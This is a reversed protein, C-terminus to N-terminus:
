STTHIIRGDFFKGVINESKDPSYVNGGFDVCVRSNKKRRGTIKWVEKGSSNLKGLTGYYSGYFSNGQLDPALEYAGNSISVKWITGGNKNSKTVKDDRGATYINGQVDLNIRDVYNTNTQAQWVLEGTASIKKVGYWEGVYANGQSDAKIHPILTYGTDMYAWVEEGNSNLKLVIEGYGAGYINGQPDVDVALFNVSGSGVTFDPNSSFSSYYKSWVLSGAASVKKLTSTGPIYVNLQLDVAFTELNDSLSFRWVETGSSDFKILRGNDGAYVNGQVDLAIRYTGCSTADINLVNVPPEEVSTGAVVTKPSDIPKPYLAAAAGSPFKLGGKFQFDGIIPM